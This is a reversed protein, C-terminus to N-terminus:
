LKEIVQDLTKGLDGFEREWHKTLIGRKDCRKNLEGGPELIVYGLGEDESAGLNM